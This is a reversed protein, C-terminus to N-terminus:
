DFYWVWLVVDPIYNAAHITYFEAKKDAGDVYHGIDRVVYDYGYVYPALMNWSTVKDDLDPYPDAEYLGIEIWPSSGNVSNVGHSPMEFMYDGGTSPYITDTQKSNIDGNMIWKETGLYDWGSSLTSYNNSSIALQNNRLTQNNSEYVDIVVGTEEDVITQIPTDDKHFPNEQNMIREKEKKSVKPFEDEAVKEKHRVEFQKEMKASTDAEAHAAGNNLFTMAFCAIVGSILLKNKVVIGGKVLNM